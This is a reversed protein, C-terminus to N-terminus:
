DLGNQMAYRVLEATNKLDLKNMMNARHTEVTRVSIRLVEAVESNSKGECIFKLVERERATLSRPLHGEGGRFLASIDTSVVGALAKTVYIAGKRITGIAAFLEEDSDEKLLYGQAGASIAHYLYERDKHMTLVLIKVAPFLGRIERCAEIGSLKPMSIDLIALNPLLKKVLEIAEQGDNAEGVVKMEPTENIIRKMGQRFLLHEDALVIRYPEM